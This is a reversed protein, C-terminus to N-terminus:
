EIRKWLEFFGNGLSDLNGQSYHNESVDVKHVGCKMETFVLNDCNVCSNSLSLNKM